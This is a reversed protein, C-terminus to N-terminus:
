KVWFTVYNDKHDTYVHQSFRVEIGKYQYDDSLIYFSEADDYDGESKKFPEGFTKDLIAKIEYRSDPEVKGNFWETGDKFKDKEYTINFKSGIKDVTKIQKSSCSALFVIAIILSTHKM